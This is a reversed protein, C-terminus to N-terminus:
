SPGTGIKKLNLLVKDLKDELTESPEGSFKMKTIIESLRAPDYNAYSSLTTAIHEHGFNQSIAKIQDGTKCHKLALDIATHRFTHPPYYPLGANQARERFIRRIAGTGKWYVAEVEAPREFSSREPGQEPKSQPFMPDQSGFGKHKLHRAWGVVHDVLEENFRFLTSSIYKSFKTQVGQKPNQSVSLEKENFCGLPLTAIARDRMGSLLAFSILARDRLDVETNIQISDTLSVIYELPPYNRAICQTAIREEKEGMRLYKVVDPTIRSKYGAQWSLWSFFKSLHRLYTHCTMLSIPSGRYQRRSLWRKFEIAKDPNFTALDAHKTFDEYLLIAKEVNTITSDCCGDAEKLWRFFKRKIRENKISVKLTL